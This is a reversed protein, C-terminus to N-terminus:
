GPASRASSRIGENLIFYDLIDRTTYEPRRSLWNYCYAATRSDCFFELTYRNIKQPLCATLLYRKDKESLKDWIPNPVGNSNEDTNLMSNTMISSKENTKLEKTEGMSVRQPIPVSGLKQAKNTRAIECRRVHAFGFRDFFDTVRVTEETDWFIFRTSRFKKSKRLAQNFKPLGIM